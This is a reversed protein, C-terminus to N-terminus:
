FLSQIQEPTKNKTEPLIFIGFLVGLVTCCGYFWFPAVLTLAEQLNEFTKTAIFASAWYSFTVITSGPGRYKPPLVEYSVVWSLPTTGLGSSSIFVILSTIPLWRLDSATNHEKMYFYAGMVFISLASFFESLIFLTRRNIRQVLVASAFAGVVVQKM